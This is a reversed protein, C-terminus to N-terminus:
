ARASIVHSVHPFELAEGDFYDGFGGLIDQVIEDRRDEPLDKIAAAAPSALLAGTAFLRGDDHQLTLEVNDVTVDKFGADEFLGRIDDADSLQCVARIAAAVPEGLHKEFAAIQSSMLPNMEVGRAVCGLCLGGPKLVRRFETLAAPRDPFFQLGQQCTLVDFSDAEFPMKAADGQVWEIETGATNQQAVELMDANLDLGVARGAKGIRDRALRAVIGTGCAVDLIRSDPKLDTLDVLYKAWPIFIVPVLYEEYREAASSSVQWKSNLDM